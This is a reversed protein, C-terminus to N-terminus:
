DTLSPNSLPVDLIYTLESNKINDHMRDYKLCAGQRSIAVRMEEYASQTDIGWGSGDHQFVLTLFMDSCDQMRIHLRRAGTDAVLFRGLASALAIVQPRDCHLLFPLSDSVEGSVMVHDHRTMLRLVGCVQDLLALPEAPEFRSFLTTARWNKRDAEATFYGARM